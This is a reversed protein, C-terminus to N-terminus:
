ASGLAMGVGLAFLLLPGSSGERGRWCLSWAMSAM